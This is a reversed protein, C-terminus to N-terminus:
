GSTTITKPSLAEIATNRVDVIVPSAVTGALPAVGPVRVRRVFLLAAPPLAPPRLDAGMLAIGLRQRATTADVAAGSVRVRAITTTM